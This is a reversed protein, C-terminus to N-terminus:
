VVYDHWYKLDHEELVGLPFYGDTFEEEKYLMSFDEKYYSMAFKQAQDRDRANKILAYGDRRKRDKQGFTVFYKPKTKQM